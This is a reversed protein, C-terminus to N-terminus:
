FLAKLSSFKYYRIMLPTIIGRSRSQVSWNPTNKLRALFFQAECHIVALKISHDWGNLGGYGIGLIVLIVLKM